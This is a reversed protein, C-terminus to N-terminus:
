NEPKVATKVGDSRIQQIELHGFMALKLSEAIREARDMFYDVAEPGPATGELTRRFLGLWIEFHQPQVRVLKQHAPVPRGSYSGANLAVSAWFAKMKELHPGWDDGIVESFIPGLLPHSRIHGYFTDVLQSVYAEDVGIRAANARIALRREEASRYVRADM